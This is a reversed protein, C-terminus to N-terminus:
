VMMSFPVFTMSPIAESVPKRTRRSTPRGSQEWRARSRVVGAFPTGGENTHCAMCDSARMLYEGRGEAPKFDAALQATAETRQIPVLIFALLCAVCVLVLAALVKLLTKM